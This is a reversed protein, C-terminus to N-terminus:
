LLLFRNNERSNHITFKSAFARNETVSLITREYVLLIKGVQRQQSIFTSMSFFAQRSVELIDKQSFM